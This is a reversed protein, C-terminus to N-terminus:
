RSVGTADFLVVAEAFLTTAQVRNRGKSPVFAAEAIGRDSTSTVGLASPEGDISVLPAEIRGDGEVIKWFVDVGALPRGEGDTVRVRFPEALSEGTSGRQGSGSVISLERGFSPIPPSGPPSDPLPPATPSSGGGCAVSTLAVVATTLMLLSRKSILGKMNKDKRM